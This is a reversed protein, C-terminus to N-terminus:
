KKTVLRIYYIAAGMSILYSIVGIANATGANNQYILQYYLDVMAMQPGESTGLMMPISFSGMMSTFILVASVAIAGKAMPALVTFIIKLSGAGVNRAAEIYSNDIGRFAGMMLLLALALDKWVLAIVIGTSSFALSPAHELDVIGLLSLVANLIGNPALFVRMAHGVVVFPIFLPVKFLFEIFGNAHFRLFGGLVVGFVLLVTLSVLSIWVTYLLDTRYLEWVEAYNGLGYGDEVRFSGIFSLLFPYVFLVAVVLIAPLVLATGAIRHLQRQLFTTM